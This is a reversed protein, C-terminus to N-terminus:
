ATASRQLGAALGPCEASRRCPASVLAQNPCEARFRANFAEIYANDTTKGRRIYAAVVGNAYAWLNAERAISQGDNSCRIHMPMGYTKAAESLSEVVAMAAATRCVKIVPCLRVNNDVVTLGWLRTGDFLQDYMWDMSWCDNPSAAAVRDECLKAMVRWRRPKCRMQLGELRCLRYVRKASVPWGERQLLVHIRWSGYRTRTQAIERLHRRLVARESRRHQYCCSSRPARVVRCARRVSVRFRSRVFGVMVKARAARM